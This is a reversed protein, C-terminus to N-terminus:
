EPTYCKLPDVEELSGGAGFQCELQPVIFPPDVRFPSNQFDFRLAPIDNFGSITCCVGDCPDGRGCLGGVGNCRFRFEGRCTIDAACVPDVDCNKNWDIFQNDCPGMLGRQENLQNEDLDPLVIDSFRLIGDGYADCDIDVGSTQYRYSMVSNYNPKFEPWDFAGGHHLGLNHGLEHMFTGGELEFRPYAGWREAGLSVLFDDTWIGESFGSADRDNQFLQHVWLSYHFTNCRDPDFHAAKLNEFSQWFPRQSGWDGWKIDPSDNVFRQHPVRTGGGGPFGGIEGADIHLAIGHDEFGEVVAELVNPFPEHSCGEEWMWDVEVFVDPVKPEAGLMTINVAGGACGPVGTPLVEEGDEFGDGDTDRSDPLTQILNEYNDTLGDGDTDEQLCREYEQCDLIAVTADTLDPGCQNPGPMPPEPGGLFLHNLVYIGDTIDIAETDDADAADKCPPAPGGLFLFNFTYVADTLQVAGDANSDGRMFDTGPAGPPLPALPGDPGDLRNTPGPGEYDGAVGVRGGLWGGGSYCSGSYGYGPYIHLTLNKACPPMSMGEQSIGSHIAPDGLDSTFEITATYYASQITPMELLYCAGSTVFDYTPWLNVQQSFDIVVGQTYGDCEDCIATADFSPPNGNKVTATHTGTTTVEEVSLDGNYYQLWTRNHKLGFSWGETLGTTVTMLTRVKLHIEQGPQGYIYLSDTHWSYGDDLSGQVIFQYPEGGTCDPPPDEGRAVGSVLLCGVFVGSLACVRMAVERQQAPLWADSGRPCRRQRSFPIGPQGEPHRGGQQRTPRARWM